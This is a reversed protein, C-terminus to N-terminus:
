IQEASQNEEEAEEGASQEESFRAIQEETALPLSFYFASGKGPESEVWVKGRYTTIIDKVRFLGLGKEGKVGEGQKFPEFINELDEQAIGTGTDSVSGIFENDKVEGSIVINGQETHRLANSVLNQLVGLEIDDSDAFVLPLNASLRLELRLHKQEAQKSFLKAVYAIVEQIAFPRSFEEPYLRKYVLSTRDLTIGLREKLKGLEERVTELAEKQQHNLKGLEGDALPDLYAPFIKSFPSALDHAMGATLVSEQESVIATRLVEEAMRCIAWLTTIDEHNYMEKNQKTGLNLIGVVKGLMLLPTSIEAQLKGMEEEVSKDENEKVLTKKQERLKVVLPSQENLQLIFEAKSDDMGLQFKIRYTQDDYQYSLFNAQEPEFIKVALGVLNEAVDKVTISTDRFLDRYKNVEKLYAYRDQFFTKEVVPLLKNKLLPHLLPLILALLIFLGIIVPKYFFIYSLGAFMGVILLSALAYATTDRIVLNIDMLHHKIIAYSIILSYTLILFDHPFPEFSFYVSIFHMLGGSAAITLAILLYKAQNKKYGSLQQYNKLLVYLGDIILLAFFAIFLIYIWGPIIAFFPAFKKVGNIFNNNFMILLFLFATVYSSFIVKKERENKNVGIYVKAFHWFAPPTFSAFIYVIRAVWVAEFDNRTLSILFPFSTWLGMTINAIAFSKNVNKNRDKFYVFIGLVVCVLSAIM